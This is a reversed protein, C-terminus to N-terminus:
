RWFFFVTGAIVIAALLWCAGEIRGYMRERDGIAKCQRDHLSTLENIYDLGAGKNSHRPNRAGARPVVFPPPM